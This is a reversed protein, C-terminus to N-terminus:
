QRCEEIRSVYIGESSTPLNLELRFISSQSDKGLQIQAKGRPNIRMFATM